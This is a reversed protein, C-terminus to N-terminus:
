EEGDDPDTDTDDHEPIGAWQRLEADDAGIHGALGQLEAIEGYSIREARIEGRLYELRAPIDDDHDTDDDDELNDTLDRLEEVLAIALRNAIQYLAIGAADTLDGPWEGLDPDERYAALDVFEAWRTATYISPADDAVEHYGDDDDWEGDCNGWEEVVVDRVRLLFVAGATDRGDPSACDAM